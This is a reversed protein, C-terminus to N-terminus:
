KPADGPTQGLRLGAQWDDATAFFRQYALDYYSEAGASADPPNLGQVAVLLNLSNVTWVSGPKGGTGKNSWLMRPKLRAPLTWRKPVCHVDELSPPEETLTAIMGLAVFDPSPPVPRWIYLSQDKGYHFSWVQRYRVPHPCIRAVVTDLISSKQITNCATDSIQLPYHTTPPHTPPNTLTWVDHYLGWM